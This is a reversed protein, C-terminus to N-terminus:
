LPPAVKEGEDPPDFDTPDIGHKKMTYRLIDRSVNLSRAAESQNGEAERLATEVMSKELRAIEAKLDWLQPPKKQEKSRDPKSGNLAVEQLTRPLHRLGIRPADCLVVAHELANRLERVNGPWSYSQFLALVDPELGIVQKNSSENFETIFASIFRELDGIRERLPPVRIEIVHIRYFLDARFRQESVRTPLSANTACLLRFDVPIQNTGGLRRLTREQLVRLLKGQATLSLQDVEDLFLTGESAMEMMGPKRRKADTYAGPEVGFLEAELLDAPISACNLAIFEGSTARPSREHILRAIVEKGSGSEGSIFVNAQTPAVREVMKLTEQFAPSEGLILSSSGDQQQIQRTVARSALAQKVKLRVEQMRLPKELYDFAHLRMAEVASSANAHATIILTPPPDVFSQQMRQLIEIGFGDPLRLDLIVLDVPQSQLANWGDAITFARRTQYGERELSRALFLSLTQEDDVILINEAM